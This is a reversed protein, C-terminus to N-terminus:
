IFSEYTRQVGRLSFHRALELPQALSGAARLIKASAHEIAVFAPQERRQKRMMTQLFAREAEKRKERAVAFLEEVFKGRSHPFGTRAVQGNVKLRVEIV